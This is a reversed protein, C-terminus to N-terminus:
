TRAATALAPEAVPGAGAQEDALEAIDVRHLDQQGVFREVRLLGQPDTEDVFDDRVRLQHLPRFRDGAMDDRKRRDGNAHHLLEHDAEAVQRRILSPM